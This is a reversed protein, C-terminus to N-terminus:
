KEIIVFAVVTNDSHSLSILVRDKEIRDALKGYLTISPQGLENNSVEIDRWSFEGRWGTSLAKSFAEKAAFRAAFHQHSIKKSRCYNIETETFIKSIFTDGYRDIIDRIRDIEIIDVGIGQIM